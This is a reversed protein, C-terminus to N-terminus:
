EQFEDLKFMSFKPTIESEKHSNFYLQLRKDNIRSFGEIGKKVVLCIFAIPGQTADDLGSIIGPFCQADEFPIKLNPLLFTLLIPNEEENKEHHLELIIGTKAKNLYIEGIWKKTIKKSSDPWHIYEVKLCIAESDYSITMEDETIEKGTRRYYVFYKNCFHKELDRNLRKHKKKNLFQKLDNLDGISDNPTSMRNMERPYLFQRINSDIKNFEESGYLHNEIIINQSDLSMNRDQGSIKLDSNPTNGIKQLIVTKSLLHGYIKSHYTAHGIMISHSDFDSETLRLVLQFRKSPENRLTMYIYLYDTKADTSAWGEYFRKKTDFVSYMEVCLFDVNATFALKSVAIGWHAGKVPKEGTREYVAWQTNELYKLSNNKELFRSVIDQSVNVRTPGENFGSDPIRKGPSEIIDPEQEIVPKPEILNLDLAFQKATNEWSCGHTKLLLEKLHKAKEKAASVDAAIETIVKRVEDLEEEKYNGEKNYNEKGTHDWVGKINIHNILKLGVAGSKEKILRYLGSNKGVILPVEAAIAEWGVLGFGEHWSLMMAVSCRRLKDFVKKRNDSYPFQWISVVREMRENLDNVIKKKEEDNELVMGIAYLHPLELLNEPTNNEGAKRVAEAFADLALRFQKIRDNKPSLRGYAIARFDKQPPLPEIEALGPVIQCAIKNSGAVLSNLKETLLPGVGFIRDGQLFLTRQNEVKEEAAMVDYGLVIAYSEYSMHHILALKGGLKKKLELAIPGTRVDHGVWWVFNGDLKLNYLCSVVSEIAQYDFEYEEGLNSLEVLEINDNDRDPRPLSAIASKVICIVRVKDKLFRGLAMTFDMNFSNIGGEVPGWNDAIIVITKQNGM